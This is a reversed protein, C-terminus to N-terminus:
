HVSEKGVIGPDICERNVVLELTEPLCSTGAPSDVKGATVKQNVVIRSYNTGNKRMFGSM